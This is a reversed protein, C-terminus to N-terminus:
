RSSVRTKRFDRRSPTLQNKSDDFFAEFIERAPRIAAMRIEEQERKRCYIMDGGDTRLPSRFSVAKGTKREPSGYM